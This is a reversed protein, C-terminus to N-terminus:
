KFYYNNATFKAYYTYTRDVGSTVTEDYFPNDGSKKTGDGKYWGDFTYGDHISVVVFKCRKTSGNDMTITGATSPTADSTTTGTTEDQWGKFAYYVQMDPRVTGKGQSVYANGVVKGGWVNSVGMMLLLAILTFRSHFTTIRSKVRPYFTVDAHSCAVMVPSKVGMWIKLNESLINLIKLIEILKTM